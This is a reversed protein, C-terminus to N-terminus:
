SPVLHKALGDPLKESLLATTSVFNFENVPRERETASAYQVGNAAFLPLGLTEALSVATQNRREEAPDCHRQLEICVNGKGFLETLTELHKRAEDYGHNLLSAALV